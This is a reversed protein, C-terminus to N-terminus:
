WRILSVKVIFGKTSAAQTQSQCQTSLNSCVASSVTINSHVSLLRRSGGWCQRRFMVSYIFIASFSLIETIMVHKKEM